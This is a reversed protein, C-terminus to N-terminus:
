AADTASTKPWRTNGHKPAGRECAPLWELPSRHLRLRGAWRVFCVRGCLMISLTVNANLILFGSISLTADDNLGDCSASNCAAPYHGSAQACQNHADQHCAAVPYSRVWKEISHSACVTCHGCPLHLEIQVGAWSPFFRSTIFTLNAWLSQLRHGCRWSQVPWVRRVRVRRGCSWIAANRAARWFSRVPCYRASYRCRAPISPVCECAVRVIPRRREREM